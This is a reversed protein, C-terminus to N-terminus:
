PNVILKKGELRFKVEMRELIKLVQSLTLSRQFKGQFRFQQNTKGRYEVDIDYWRELQRMVTPLDANNFNFVGNKWAIVQAPNVGTDIIIKETIVAQQGPSLIKSNNSSTIKVSGEILTTRVANENPYANTNFSTGLVETISGDSSTVIFPQSKNIAIEFYVEGTISVPRTKDNFVTPYTISSAANLWVHTGDSLTLKYQGGRPTSMTNYSLKNSLSEPNAEPAGSHREYNYVIQGDKKIISSNGQTALQGNSASDLEITSGDALTLLARDSGPLIEAEGVLAEAYTPKETKPKSINWLYAGIGAIILVAAAYKIWKARLFAFRSPQDSIPIINNKDINIIKNFIPDFRIPDYASQTEANIKERFIEKILEANAENNIVAELQERDVPEGALYRELLDKSNVDAM